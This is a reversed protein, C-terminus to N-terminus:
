WVSSSSRCISSGDGCPHEAILGSVMPGLGTGALASGSYLVMTTNRERSHYIDSIVGGVMTAFTSAGVGVFSRAVLMGIFSDASPYGVIFLIGSDTFVPTLESFPALVMPSLAFAQLGHQSAPISHSLLFIGSRSHRQFWSIRGLVTLLARRPQVAPL